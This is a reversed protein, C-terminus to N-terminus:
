YESLKARLPVSPASNIITFQRTFINSAKLKESPESASSELSKM